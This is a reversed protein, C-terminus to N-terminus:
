EFGTGDVRVCQRLCATAMREAFSTPNGSYYHDSGAYWTSAAGAAAAAALVATFRKAWANEVDLAIAYPLFKEFLEPTKEPPNLFQLREEEAVGLYQRLGEIGDMVKRGERTPAKLLDFAFSSVGAAVVPAIMALADVWHLASKVVLVVGVAIVLMLIFFGAIGGLRIKQGSWWSSVTGAGMGSGVMALLTGLMMMTGLQGEYTVIIALGVAVSLAIAGLTGLISWVGNTHFLRGYYAETLGQELTSQASSPDTTTRSSSSRPDCASLKQWTTLEPLSRKTGSRREIWTSGSNDSLKLYGNV